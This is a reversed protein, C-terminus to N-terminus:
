ILPTEADLEQCRVLQLPTPPLNRHTTEVIEQGLAILAWPDVFEGAKERRGSRALTAHRDTPRKGVAAKQGAILEQAIENGEVGAALAKEVLVIM